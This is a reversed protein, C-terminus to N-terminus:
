KGFCGWGLLDSAKKNQSSKPSKSKPGFKWIWGHPFLLWEAVAISWYPRPGQWRKPWWGPDRHRLHQPSAPTSVRNFTSSTLSAIRFLTAAPVIHARQRVDVVVTTTSWLDKSKNLLIKKPKLISWSQEDVPFVKRHSMSKQQSHAHNIEFLNSFSLTPSRFHGLPGLHTSDWSWNETKKRMKRHSLTSTTSM